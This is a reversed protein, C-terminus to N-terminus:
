INDTNYLIIKFVAGKDNNSVSLKGKCHDEVITKSMYLGLGTGDKQLKTSFYPDFIKDIIDLPIGGGNDSVRLENGRAEIVICPNLIKRELLIDEANKIINLIVQKIENPYTIFVEQSNITTVLEINQNQVTAKVINLVSRVIESYTTEKKEKNFKFFERFDDITISLHQAYSGIKESLEFALENDLKGRSAKLAIAGSTASIASLPQRWQHAIMSIMEGMQALRSQQMIQRDKQRNKEVEEKVKTQLSSNIEELEKSTQSILNSLAKLTSNNQNIPNLMDLMKFSIESSSFNESLTLITMTQNLLEKEDKSSFFEGYTFFGSVSTIYSLPALEEDVSDQLLAKRAMCSYVFISESSKINSDRYISNGCEVIADINGYGFTVKDGVNLNGAFILSGDNNNGIVARPIKLAGKQIILPFEIGTRPLQQSVELGLYKSYIDFASVGDIEYVVNKDSKTITMTKGISEWGFSAKTNVFLSDSYLLAVVVANTFIEDQTFVITNKFNANDGALGGAVILESDYDNFAAIYDDGNIHLGDTFSIAVEAKRTSDFQEILRNATTYSDLSTEASHTIVQTHEFISFSLVTSFEYTKGELIEGDTTTGIIKIHPILLKITQVLNEIFEVECIGTFIQLLINKNKSIDHIDIFNELDGATIYKKNLTYM